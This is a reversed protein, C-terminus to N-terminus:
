RAVERGHGYDHLLGPLAEATSTISYPREQSEAPDELLYGAPALELKVLEERVRALTRLEAKVTEHEPDGYEYGTLKERLMGAYSRMWRLFHPMQHVQRAHQRLADWPLLRKARLHQRQIQTQPLTQATCDEFHTPLHM